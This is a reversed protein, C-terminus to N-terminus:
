DVFEKFKTIMQDFMSQDEPHIEEEGFEDILFKQCVSFIETFLKNQRQRSDPSLKWFEDLKSSILDFKQQKIM